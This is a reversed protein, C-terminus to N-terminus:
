LQSLLEAILSVERPKKKKKNIGVSATHTQAQIEKQLKKKLLLKTFVLFGNSDANQVRFNM